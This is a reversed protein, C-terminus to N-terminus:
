QTRVAMDFRTTGYTRKKLKQTTPTMNAPWPTAASEVHREVVLVGGHTLLPVTATVMEAIAADSLAYPPDALIIDFHDRPATAVYRSAESEVVRVGPVGVKDANRHAIEAATHNSEVLVVERAGRSAAELGLAGSGAFLDLVVADTFGFRVSLSSFLGEKARDTTPRTGAPPISLSRGRAIGSIIRAM